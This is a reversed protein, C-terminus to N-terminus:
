SPTGTVSQKPGIRRQSLIYRAIVFYVLGAIVLGTLADIGIGPLALFLFYVGLSMGSSALVLLLVYRGFTQFEWLFEEDCEAKKLEITVGHLEWLADRTSNRIGSLSRL